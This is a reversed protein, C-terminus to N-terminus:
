SAEVWLVTFSTEPCFTFWTKPSSVAKQALTPNWLRWGRLIERVVHCFILFRGTQGWTETGM